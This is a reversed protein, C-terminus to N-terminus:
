TSFFDCADEETAEELANLLVGADCEVAGPGDDHTWVAFGDSVSASDLVSDVLVGGLDGGCCVGNVPGGVAHERGLDAVLDVGVGEWIVDDVV